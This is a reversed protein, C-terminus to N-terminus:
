LMSEIAATWVQEVGNTTTGAPRGKFHALYGYVSAAGGGVGPTDARFGCAYYIGHNLYLLEDSPIYATVENAYGTVWIANSGGHHNRLYVAYGSVLEGGSFAFTLGGSLKWVQLPTPVSTAYTHADIQSIMQQAHRKEWSAVGSAAQNRAVYIARVAAMNAPTDLIDLPLSISQYSSNFPGGVARGPTGIGNIVTHGLDSGLQDRLAWGQAGLPNQDGAPGLIFQAFAGTLDEIWTVAEGPYDPDFLTGPPGSVPHSGYGFLVAMPNGGPSRAVLVPVDQEVYPLSERNTSFNASLVKYDLSCTVPTSNLTTQVLSIIQDVLWNTYTQVYSLQTSNINYMSLPNIADTLVPGNHTHTATLVFDTSAVGMSTVANRIAQHTARGFGLVDATVIVNPYGNDWYITCRAWLDMYRGTAERPADVGYGALYSPGAWSPTINAKGTSVAMSGAASAWQVNLNPGAFVSAALISGGTLVQRRSLGMAVETITQGGTDCKVMSYFKHLDARFRISRWLGILVHEVHGNTPWKPVTEIGNSPVFRPEQPLQTTAL